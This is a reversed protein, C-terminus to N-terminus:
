ARPFPQPGGAAGDQIRGGRQFAQFRSGRTTVTGRDGEALLGYDEGRMSFEERSQDPFEFTAFYHNAASSNGGGSIGTRKAVVTAPRNLVPARSDAARRRAGRILALMVMVMLAGFLLAILLFLVVFTPTGWHHPM